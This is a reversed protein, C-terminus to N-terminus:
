PLWSPTLDHSSANTLNILPGGSAPMTFIDFLYGPGYATLAILAGDRSYEATVFGDLTDALIVEATGGPPAIAVDCMQLSPNYRCYLLQGDPTWSKVLAWRLTDAPLFDVPSTGDTATVARIGYRGNLKVNFALRTGDPSWFPSDPATGELLSGEVVTVEQRGDPTAVIVARQYPGTWRVFALRRGDPAWRVQEELGGFSSLKAPNSGDAKMLWIQPLGRQAQRAFAIRTGGPSVAPHDDGLAFATLRQVNGGDRDMRYINRNNNDRSSSFVLGPAQLTDCEVSFTVRTTRGAEILVEQPVYWDPTCTLALPRILVSHTGPALQPLVLSPAATVTDLATGDLDV